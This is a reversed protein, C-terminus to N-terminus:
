SHTRRKSKSAKPRTRRRDEERIKRANDFIRQMVEDGDFMGAVSRWDTPQTMISAVQARLATLQKELVNLREELMAPTM